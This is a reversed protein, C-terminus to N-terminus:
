RGTLIESCEAGIDGDDTRVPVDPVVPGGRQYWWRVGGSWEAPPVIQSVARGPGDM